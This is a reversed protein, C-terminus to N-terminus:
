WFGLAMALFSISQTLAYWFMTFLLAKISNKAVGQLRDEYTSLIHRELALSSVTRIASVAELALAASNAFRKGNLEELKVELRIRLYGSFLLPPLASHEDTLIPEPQDLILSM